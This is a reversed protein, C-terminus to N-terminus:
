SNMLRDAGAHRCRSVIHFFAFTSSEILAPACRRASAFQVLHAINPRTESAAQPPTRRVKSQFGDGHPFRWPRQGIMGVVRRELAEIFVNGRIPAPAISLQRRAIPDGEYEEGRGRM